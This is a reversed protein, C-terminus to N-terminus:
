PHNEGGVNGANGANAYEIDNVVWGSASTVLTVAYSTTDTHDGGTSTLKEAISVDFTISGPGYAALQTIGATGASVQKQSTRQSQTGPTAWTAELSTAFEPAILGRMKGVYAQYSETYSWTGYEVGFRLATNAASTLDAQSFPLWDYINAQGKGVTTTGSPASTPSVISPNASAPPTGPSTPVIAPPTDSAAATASPSATAGSSGSSSHGGPGILYIGLGALVVVIAIFLARQQGSSLNM